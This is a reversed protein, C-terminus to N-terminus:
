KVVRFGLKGVQRVPISIVGAQPCQQLSWIVHHVSLAHNPQCQLMVMALM